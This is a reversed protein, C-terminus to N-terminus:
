LYFPQAKEIKCLVCKKKEILEINLSILYKVPVNQSIIIQPLSAGKIIFPILVATVNVKLINIFHELVDNLFGDQLLIEDFVLVNDGQQINKSPFNQGKKIGMIDCKLAEGIDWPFSSQFCTRELYLIKKISKGIYEHIFEVELNTRLVSKLLFFNKTDFRKLCHFDESYEFHGTEVIDQDKMELLRQVVFEKNMRETDKFSTDAIIGKIDEGKINNKRFVERIENFIKSLMRRSRIILKRLFYKYKFSFSEKGRSLGLLAILITFIDAIRAIWLWLKNTINFHSLLPRHFSLFFILPFVILLFGLFWNKKM